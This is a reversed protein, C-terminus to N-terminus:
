NMEMKKKLQNMLHERLEGAQEFLVCITHLSDELDDQSLGLLEEDGIRFMQNLDNTLNTSLGSVTMHALSKGDEDVWDKSLSVTLELQHDQDCQLDDTYVSYELMAMVTGQQFM